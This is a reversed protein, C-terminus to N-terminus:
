SEPPSGRPQASHSPLARPRGPWPSMWPSSARRAPIPWWGHSASCNPAASNRPSVTSPNAASHRTPRHPISSIPTMLWSSGYSRPASPRGSPRPLRRTLRRRPGSTSTAPSSRCASAARRSPGNSRGTSDAPSRTTPASRPTTRPAAPQPWRRDGPIPAVTYPSGPFSAAQIQRQNGRGGAAM